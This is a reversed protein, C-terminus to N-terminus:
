RAAVFSPSTTGTIVDVAHGAETLYWVLDDLYREGGRRVEPWSFPHVVAIRLPGKVPNGRAPRGVPPRRSRAVRHGAGMRCRCDRGRRPARGRGPRRQAVVPPRARRASRPSPAAPRPAGLRPR